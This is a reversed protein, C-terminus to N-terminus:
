KQNMTQISRNFPQDIKEVHSEYAVRIILIRHAIGLLIHKKVEFFTEFTFIRSDTLARVFWVILIDSQKFPTTYFIYANNITYPVKWMVWTNSAITVSFFLM